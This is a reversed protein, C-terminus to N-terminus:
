DYITKIRKYHIWYTSFRLISIDIMLVTVFLLDIEDVRGYPRSSKM